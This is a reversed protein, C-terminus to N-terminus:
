KPRGAPILSTPLSGMSRLDFLPVISPTAGTRTKKGYAAGFLRPARGWLPRRCVSLWLLSFSIPSFVTSLDRNFDAYWGLTCPRQHRQARGFECGYAAWIRLWLRGWFCLFLRKPPRSTVSFRFCMFLITTSTDRKPRRVVRAHMPPGSRARNNIPPIRSPPLAIQGGVSINMSPVRSQRLIALRLKRSNLPPRFRGGCDATIPLRAKM